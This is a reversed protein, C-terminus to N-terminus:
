RPVDLELQDLHPLVFVDVAPDRLPCEDRQEVTPPLLEIRHREAIPELLPAPAPPVQAEHDPAREPQLELVDIVPQREPRDRQGVLERADDQELLNITRVLDQGALRIVISAILVGSRCWHLWLPAHISEPSGPPSSRWRASSCRATARRSTRSNMRRSPIRIVANVTSTM